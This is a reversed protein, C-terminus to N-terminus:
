SFHKSVSQSDVYQFFKNM